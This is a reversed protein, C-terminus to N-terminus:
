TERVLELEVEGDPTDRVEKFNLREFLKRASHNETATAAWIRSLKMHEIGFNIALQLAATMFGQGRFQPLLVCGLEGAGGYFGRYYGCTGVIHGSANDIIGWHISNGEQYDNEIKEQMETAEETTSAKVADYFSIDIIAHIDSPLIQRLSVKDGSINPFTDYPPLNM